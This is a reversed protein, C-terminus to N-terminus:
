QGVLEVQARALWGGFASPGGHNVHPPLRRDAVISALPRGFSLRHWWSPRRSVARPACSTASLGMMMRVRTPLCGSPLCARARRRWRRAGRARARRASSRARGRRARRARARALGGRAGRGADAAVATPAVVGAVAARAPARAPTTAAAAAVRARRLRPHNTVRRHDYPRSALRSSVLPALRSSVPRSSVLRSSVVVGRRSGSHLSRVFCM